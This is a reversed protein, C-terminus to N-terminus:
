PKSNVLRTMLLAARKIQRDFSAVSATEGVSHAGEGAAGLGVLGDLRDTVFAIDGAGRKLPDLEPMPDLGLDRNVDNLLALLKRNGATPAMAPYSDSFEINADTGSLHRAVISRMKSEIRDRQENSLARLDGRAIAKAAIINTKGTATGGTDANNLAATDGGLVLSVSFTAGDERAERRFEDLIRALEYGAGYGAQTSFIQASHGSRGTATLLWSSSSRRSISGMDHNNERALPEFELAVDSSRAAALLDARAVSQPVGPREEDGTLVITIRADRLAGATQMARLAAVMIALGGKMDNVGPGEIVDGRRVYSQFPSDREFVTDLHGILLIRKGRGRGKHEAILHGGRNVAQMPVWHTVFGLDTLQATMVAGVREVGQPNMTGSNINVLTEVLRLVTGSEAQAAAVIRKETSTPQALAINLACLLAGAVIPAAFARPSM